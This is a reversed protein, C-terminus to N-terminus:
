QMTPFHLICLYFQTFTFLVFCLCPILPALSLYTLFPSFYRHTQISLFHCCHIAFLLLFFLFITASSSNIFFSPFLLHFSPIYTCPFFLAHFNNAFFSMLILKPLPLHSFPCRWTHSFSQKLILSPCASFFLLQISLLLCSSISLHTLCLFPILSLIISVLFSLFMKMSLVCLILLTFGNKFFGAVLPLLVPPHDNDM